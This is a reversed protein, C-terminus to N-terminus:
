HALVDAHDCGADQMADALIPLRDFAREDYIGRALGVVTSTLWAPDVAVPRFPNGFVDRVLRAYFERRQRRRALTWLRVSFDAELRLCAGIACSGADFPEPSTLWMAADRAGDRGYIAAGIAGGRRR